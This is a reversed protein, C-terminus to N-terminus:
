WWLHSDLQRPWDLWPPIKLFRAALVGIPLLFLWALVMFRGHWAAAMDLDHPRTPDIPGLFWDLM